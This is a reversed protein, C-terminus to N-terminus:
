EDDSVKLGDLNISSTMSFNEKSSSNDDYPSTVGPDMNISNELSESGGMMSSGMSHEMMYNNRKPINSQFHQPKSSKGGQASRGNKADFKQKAKEFAMVHSRGNRLDYSGLGVEVMTPKADSYTRQHSKNEQRKEFRKSDDFLQKLENINPKYEHPLGM